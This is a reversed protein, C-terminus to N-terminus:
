CEDAGNEWDHIEAAQYSIVAELNRIRAKAKADRQECQLLIDRLYILSGGKHKKAIRIKEDCWNPM